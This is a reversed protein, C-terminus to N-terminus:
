RLLLWGILRQGAGRVMFAYPGRQLRNNEDTHAAYQTSVLAM